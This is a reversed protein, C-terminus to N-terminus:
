NIDTEKPFGFTSNSYAGGIMHKLITEAIAPNPNYEKAIKYANNGNDDQAYLDAGATILLEVCEPSDTISAAAIMLASANNSMKENIEAGNEILYKVVGINNEVSVAMMLATIGDANSSKLDAGKAVLMRLINVNQNQAAYLVVNNDNEDSYNLPIGKDLLYSIMYPKNNCKAAIFLANEKRNNVANLNAGHELLKDMIMVNENQAAALVPTEGEKTLYDKSFGKNLLYEIVAVSENNRAALILLNEGKDTKFNIDAGKKVLFELVEPYKAFAAAYAIAPYGYNDKDNINIGLDIFYEILPTQNVKIARMLLNLGDRDKSYINGKHCEILFKAIRYNSNGIAIYLADHGMMDRESIDAGNKILFDIIEPNPNFSCASMLPTIGYINEKENLLAGAEKLIQLYVINEKKAACHAATMGNNDKINVTTKDALLAVVYPNPNSNCELYNILLSSGNSDQYDKPLGAELARKWVEASSNLCINYALFKYFDSEIKSGFFYDIIMPNPNNRLAYTWANEEIDKTLQFDCGIEKFYDLVRLDPNIAAYFLYSHKKKKVESNFGINNWYDQLERLINIHRLYHEFNSNDIKVKKIEILEKIM